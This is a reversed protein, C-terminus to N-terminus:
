NVPVGHKQSVGFSIQWIKAREDMCFMMVQQVYKYPANADCRIKVALTSLTDPGRTKIAEKILFIRLEENTYTRRMVRYTGDRMVNVIVRDKPPNTDDRAKTAEPLTVSEVEMKSMETVCMFFIILLFVIDIMSTMQMKTEPLESGKKDLKM